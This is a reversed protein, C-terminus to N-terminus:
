AKEAADLARLFSKRALLISIVSIPGFFLSLCTLGLGLGKEGEFFAESILATLPAGMAMGILNSAMFNAAALRARVRNPAVYQVILPALVAGASGFLIMGGAAAMFITQNSTLGCIALMLIGVGAGTAFLCIVADKRGRSMWWRTLSPWMSAGAIGCTLGITGYIYGAHAPSLGYNRVFVTPLWATKAFLPIASAAVGLALFGWLRRERVVYAWAQRATGLDIEGLDQRRAPEPVTFLMLPALLLGPVGVIVLTIRWPAHGVNGSLMTALDLAAGGAVLSGAGMVTAVATYAATPFIRRERPFLDAIVSIAAPSLAAEGVAVGARLILLTLFDNAFASAVTCSSWLAVGAVVIRIRKSHDLLQALPLGVIAYVIGFGTGFLLGIQTDSIALDRALPTAILALIMRDIFSIAYLLVFIIVVFWAHRYSHEASPVASKQKIVAM